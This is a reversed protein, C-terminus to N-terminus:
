GGEDVRKANNQIFALSKEYVWFLGEQFPLRSLGFAPMEENRFGPVYHTVIMFDDVLTVSYSPMADYYYVEFHEQSAKDLSKKLEIFMQKSTEIDRKLDRLEGIRKLDEQRNRAYEPNVLYIKFDIRGATKEKVM